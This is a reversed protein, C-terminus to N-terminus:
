FKPCPLLHERGRHQRRDRRRGVIFSWGECRQGRKRGQGQTLIPHMDLLTCEKTLSHHVVFVSTPSTATRARMTPTHTSRGPTLKGRLAPAAGNLPSARTYAPHGRHALGSSVTHGARTISWLDMSLGGGLKQCSALPTCLGHEYQTPPLMPPLVHAHINRVIVTSMLSALQACTRTRAPWSATADRNSSMVGSM